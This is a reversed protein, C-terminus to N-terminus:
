PWFSPYAEIRCGNLKLVTEKDQFLIGHPEFLAKIRNVIKIALDINPGTVICMQSNNFKTEFNSLCLWAMLRLVMETIGLGTAKKVWVHNHKFSHQLPNSSDPNFLADYILGEYIHNFCCNSDSARALALHRDRDWIWFPKAHLRDILANLKQDTFAQHKQILKELDKFTV